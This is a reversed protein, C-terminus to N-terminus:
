QEMDFLVKINSVQLSKMLKVENLVHTHLEFKSGVPQRMLSTGPCVM